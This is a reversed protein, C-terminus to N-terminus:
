LYFGVLRAVFPDDLLASVPHGEGEGEGGVVAMLLEGDAGESNLGAWQHANDAIHGRRKCILFAHLSGYLPCELILSTPSGPPPLSTM